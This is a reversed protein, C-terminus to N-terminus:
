TAGTSSHSQVQGGAGLELTSRLPEYETLKLAHVFSRAAMDLDLPHDLYNLGTTSHTTPDSSTIHVSGCSLSRTSCTILITWKGPADQVFIDSS